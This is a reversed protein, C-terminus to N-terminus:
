YLDLQKVSLAIFYLWLMVFGIKVFSMILREKSGEGFYTTVVSVAIMPLAGVIAAFLPKGPSFFEKIKGFDFGISGTKM